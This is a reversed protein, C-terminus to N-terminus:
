RPCIKPEEKGGGEDEDDDDAYGARHCDLKEGNSGLLSRARAQARQEDTAEKASSTAPARRTGGSGAGSGGRGAKQKVQKAAPVAQM